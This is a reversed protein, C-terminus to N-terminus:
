VRNNAAIRSIFLARPPVLGAGLYRHFDLRDLAQFRHYVNYGGGEGGWSRIRSLPPFRSWVNYGWERPGVEGAGGGGGGVLFISKPM